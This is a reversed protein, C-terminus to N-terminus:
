PLMLKTSVSSPLQQQPPDAVQTMADFRAGPHGQARM